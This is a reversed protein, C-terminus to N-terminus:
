TGSPLLLRATIAGVIAACAAAAMVAPSRYIELLGGGATMGIGVGSLLASTSWTFAETSHEPRTTKAVLMSQIILAPAMVVGALVSLVAFFWANWPLVLLGLGGGMLALM